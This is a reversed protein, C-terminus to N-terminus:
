QLDTPDLVGLITFGIKALWDALEIETKAHKLTERGMIIKERAIPSLLSHKDKLVADLFKIVEKQEKKTM